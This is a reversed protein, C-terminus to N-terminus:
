LRGTATMMYTDSHICLGAAVVAAGYLRSRGERIRALSRVSVEKQEKAVEGVLLPLLQLVFASTATLGLATLGVLGGYKQGVTKQPDRLVSVFESAVTPEVNPYNAVSKDLLLKLLDAAYDQLFFREHFAKPGVKASLLFTEALSILNDL